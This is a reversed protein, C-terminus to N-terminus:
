DILLGTLMVFVSIIVIPESFYLRYGESLDVLRVPIGTTLIYVLSVILPFLFQFLLLILIFLKSKGFKRKLSGSDNMM